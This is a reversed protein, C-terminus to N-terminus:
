NTSNDAAGSRVLSKYHRLKRATIRHGPKQADLAARRNNDDDKTREQAKKGTVHKVALRLSGHSAERGCLQVLLLWRNCKLIVSDLPPFKYTFCWFQRACTLHM